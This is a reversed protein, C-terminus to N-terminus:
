VLLNKLNTLDDIEIYRSITVEPIKKLGNGITKADEEPFGTQILWLYDFSSIEPLLSVKNSKLKYLIYRNTSNPLEYQFVPFYFVEKETRYFTNTMEPECVFDIEFYKNLVWCLRYAPLGSSIGLMATEEFFDAVM